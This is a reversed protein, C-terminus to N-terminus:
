PGNTGSVRLFKARVTNTVGIGDTLTVRDFNADLPSTTTLTANSTWGGAVLNTASVLWARADLASKSRPFSFSFRNTKYSTTVPNTGTTWPDQSSVYKWYNAVRDGAPNATTSGFAPDDIMQVPFHLAAWAAYNTPAAAADPGFGRYRAVFMEHGATGVAVTGNGFDGAGTFGCVILDENATLAVAYGTGATPAQVQKAWLVTGSDDTTAFTTDFLGNGATTGYSGWDSPNSKFQGTFSIRGSNGVVAGRPLDSAGSGDGFKKNLIFNGATDLKLLFLSRGNTTILPTGGGFDQTGSFSGTVWVSNSRTFLGAAMTGTISPSYMKYWAPVSSSPAYKVLFLNFTGPGVVVGSGFDTSTTFGGTVYINGDSDINLSSIYDVLTGGIHWSQTVAGSAAMLRGIFIDSSGATVFTNSGLTISTLFNVGFVITGDKSYQMSAVTDTGAAGFNQGWLVNGNHDLKIV